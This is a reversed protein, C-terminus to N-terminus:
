EENDSLPLALEAHGNKLMKDMFSLFHDRMEPKKELNRKLSMFRKTAQPRNDPLRPRPSKFPLPAVWSGNSDKRLGEDMIKMFTADQISPAVQNDDKTRRFVNCGLHDAECPSQDECCASPSNTIQIDSFKEKVHFVNPCPAFLTPRKPEAINMHFTRITLPKHVNGLCVNGVIVWGLDLKQAYPQNHSGNVQKRVKHVRIIDRGLLLMIPAHPDIDPILHAVSRLHAHHLAVEPTPIEERNNPIDNCEILSPLSACFTGDLSEVEYGSARRGTSEKVGACTRLTYPASPSEDSFVEFFQSRVLSRNSQEDLIAYLKVAKERHGAPFVRVLCIKSCSRDALEGGCVETCKTTVQSPPSNEGDEGGHEPAPDAEQTWPAPGPHLATNHKESQCEARQINVTCNRAIHSSSSCCKFCVNNEKLLTKREEIPKQRFARCKRLPHPKKHLLCIKDLDVPKTPPEGTNSTTIPSVETKHVAVSVEQQRSPKWPAKETKAGLDSHTIFNFSPDSMMRAQQTVFDAFFAFPPYPVQNQRKYSTGASIWKEQLRPPLKQVIPNVGRSTDLFSLGPLDGEVKASHLEMLLDSLKTLKSGDRGTIKPFSDICKFLANEMAEASSYTHDLRDWAM